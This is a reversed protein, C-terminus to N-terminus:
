FKQNLLDGLKNYYDNSEIEESILYNEFLKLYKM